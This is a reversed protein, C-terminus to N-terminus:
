IEESTHVVIELTTSADNSGSGVLKFRAKRLPLPSWAIHHWTEDALNIVVSATEPIVFNANAVGESSSKTLDVWGQEMYVAVTVTGTSTARVSIAFDSGFHPIDFSKTYVTTTTPVAITTSDSVNKVDIRGSTIRAM